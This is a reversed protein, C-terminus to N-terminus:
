EIAAVCRGNSRIRRRQPGPVLVHHPTRCGSTRFCQHLNREAASRRLTSLSANSEIRHVITFIEEYERPKAAATAALGAVLLMAVLIKPVTGQSM